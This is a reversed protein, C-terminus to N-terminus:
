NKFLIRYEIKNVYKRISTIDIRGGRKKLIYEFYNQVDSWSSCKCKWLYWNKKKKEVKPRPRAKNNFNLITNSLSNQKQDAENITIKGNYIIRM